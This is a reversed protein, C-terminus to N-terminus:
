FPAVLISADFIGFLRRVQGDVAEQYEMGPSRNPAWSYEPGLTVHTYHIGVRSLGRGLADLVRERPQARYWAGAAAMAMNTVERHPQTRFQAPSPPPSHTRSSSAAHWNTTM